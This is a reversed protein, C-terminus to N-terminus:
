MGGRNAQDQADRMQRNLGDAAAEGAKQADSTRIEIKVDQNINQIPSMGTVPNYSMPSNQAQAGGNSADSDGSFLNRAWDPILKSIQGGMWDFMNGFLLRYSKVLSDIFSDFASGLNSLAGKFDGTLLDGIGSFLGGMMKKIDNGIKTLESWLFKFAVVIDQLLPQIDYDFASLFFNRIASEGGQFAVILDDVVLLLAAIGAAILVAPSFLVGLAASLGIAQIKLAAFVGVGIALVPWVRGLMEAFNNLVAMGFQVGNVIWDRNSEILETFWESMRELEPALGVAVLRRLGDMAFRQTILARNFQETKEAQEENLTGLERARRTLKAISASSENMMRLLSPDIGLASAFSRQEAMSLGLQQFRNRVEFLIQDATKVYGNATRVSIGLRSFDESGKQAAEGISETLSEISSQMAQASGGTVEAAFSLEQIRSVAIGTERSLNIVSREGELIGSAWKGVAAGSAAMAAAVSALLSVASGLSQNYSNLPSESGQYSFQTVLETVAAM